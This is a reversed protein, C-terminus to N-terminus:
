RQTSARIQSSLADEIADNKLQEEERTVAESYWDQVKSLRQKEFRALWEAYGRDVLTKALQVNTSRLRKGLSKSIVTLSAFDSNLVQESTHLDELLLRAQNRFEFLKADALQKKLNQTRLLRQFRSQDSSVALEGFAL